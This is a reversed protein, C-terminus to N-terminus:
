LRRRELHLIASCPYSTTPHIVPHYSLTYMRCHGVSFQEDMTGMSSYLRRRGVSSQEAMRGYRVRDYMRGHEVSSQEDM